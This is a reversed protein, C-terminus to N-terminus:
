ARPYGIPFFLLAAPMSITVVVVIFYYLDVFTSYLPSLFLIGAPIRKEKIYTKVFAFYREQNHLPHIPM